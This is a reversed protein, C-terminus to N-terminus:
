ISHYLTGAVSVIEAGREGDALSGFKNIYEIIQLGVEFKHPYPNVGSAKLAALAKLRNGYYQQFSIFPCLFIYLIINTNFLMYPLNDFFHISLKWSLITSPGERAM